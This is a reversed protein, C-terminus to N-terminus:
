WRWPYSGGGVASGGGLLGGGAGSIQVTVYYLGSGYQSWDGSIDWYSSESSISGCGIRYNQTLSDIEVPCGPSSVKYLGWTVSYTCVGDGSGGCNIVYDVELNMDDPDGEFYPNDDQYGDPQFALACQACPPSLLPPQAEAASPLSLHATVGLVVGLLASFFTVSAAIQSTRRM